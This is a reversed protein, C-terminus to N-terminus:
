VTVQRAMLDKIYDRSKCLAKEVAERSGEYDKDEIEICVYGDYGIQKLSSLFKDWRVDGLGPLCPSMYTLPPSLIGVDDLKERSIKIDKIHVHFIKDRFEFLPKIEDMQQWVFHSPDYNLGFYKSPMATFLRRFIWPSVALNQGGPWEDETFLMPCNEIGIRVENEKAFELIPKWVKDTEELNRSLPQTQMRGVFTTVMGIGLKKSATILKKLHAAAAQRKQLDEDMMNPYYALSSIEVNRDECYKRVYAAKTDDLNDVDLHSVGAYRRGGEERPWCALEVCSFGNEWAFDIVEEFTYGELIASVFGLKM